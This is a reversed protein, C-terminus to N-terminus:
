LRPFVSTQHVAPRSTCSVLLVFYVHHHGLISVSEANSARQSPLGDIVSRNGEHTILLGSIQDIKSALRFLSNFCGDLQQHNSAKHREHSTVTILKCSLIHVVYNNAMMAAPLSKITAQHCWGTLLILALQWNPMQFCTEFVNQNMNLAKCLRFHMLFHWM